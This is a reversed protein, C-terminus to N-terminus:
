ESVTIDQASSVLLPGQQQQQQQQQQSYLGVSKDYVNGLASLKSSEDLFLKMMFDSSSESMGLSSASIEPPKQNGSSVIPEPKNSSLPQVMAGLAFLRSSSPSITDRQHQDNNSNSERNTANCCSPAADELPAVFLRRYQAMFHSSGLDVGVLSSRGSGQDDENGNNTGDHQNSVTTQYANQALIQGNKQLPVTSSRRWTSDMSGDGADVVSHEQQEQLMLMLNQQLEMLALQNQRGAVDAEGLASFDNNDASSNVQRSPSGASCTGLSPLHMMLSHHPDEHGTSSSHANGYPLNSTYQQSAQQQSFTTDQQQQQQQQQFYHAQFQQHLSDDQEGHSAAAANATAASTAQEDWYSYLPQEAMRHGISTERITSRENLDAVARTSEVLKEAKHKTQQPITHITETQHEAPYGWLSMFFNVEPITKYHTEKEALVIVKILLFRNL